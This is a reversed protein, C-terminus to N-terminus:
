RVTSGGFSAPSSAGTVMWDRAHTWHKRRVVYVGYTNDGRRWPRKSRRKGSGLSGGMWSGTLGTTMEGEGRPRNRAAVGIVALGTHRRWVLEDGVLSRHGFPGTRAETPNPLEQLDRLHLGSTRGGTTDDIGDVGSSRGGGLEGSGGSCVM